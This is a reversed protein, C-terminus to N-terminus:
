CFILALDHLTPLPYQLVEMYASKIVILYTTFVLEWKKSIQSIQESM